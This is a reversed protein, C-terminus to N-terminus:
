KHWGFLQTPGEAHQPHQLTVATARRSLNDKGGSCSRRQPINTHCVTQLFFTCHWTFIIRREGRSLLGSSPFCIWGGSVPKSSIRGQKPEKNGWIQRSNCLNYHFIHLQSFFSSKVFCSMNLSVLILSHTHTIDQSHSSPQTMHSRISFALQMRDWTVWGGFYCMSYM